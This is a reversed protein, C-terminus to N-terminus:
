WRVQLGGYIARGTGPEFLASTGDAATAISSSAIYAKDSLNRGELYATIPGGNDFGIKAGWVAYAETELSNASDVYYADPVWEVNPGLYLGSPHKYLLEARVFHRPAGPIENNGWLPDDDYRFDSLTYAATLWLKDPDAGGAIMSKMVAAGFGLEIGQHITEDANGVQCTGMAPNSTFCLLENDINARYLALDWTFDETRGRTGIEYTTARQAKVDAFSIGLSAVSEGFSPVEASRSINGFVQWNRTVDWLMGGKPSWINFETEGPTAGFVVDRERTAHLFQTGAILAVDSRVYFHNEFYASLNRSTDEADVTQAGKHGGANVYQRVDTTGNHINLGAITRNAFGGIRSEDTIRAFGGYDDYRYDLWQFIPHMLHRDVNFAGVELVTGPQLRVTTKNAIRVTDINRQYDNLVNGAAATRPDTLAAHKTVSGPIRQDVDNANLYFRTEIAETLRYGVNLSGRVSEGDSHDRFGDQEQWTGAMFYDVPGSVGGSSAALKHFGFSGADVRVGFLDADYGTAMVFNIAGGLANAGFRLANAGKFVEIYRYATPDIEQFDGYGDATNIPIGDMFLQIGRLHFNRSLGSGRISLRSDEGWKPQVFVGPVYDLADKITVAPTSAKYATDPVVEVAGPTREIDATAEAATPVGLSGSRTGPAPLGAESAAEVAAQQPAGSPSLPATKKVAAAKAKPTTTVVNVPPLETAGEASEQALSPLASLCLGAASLAALGGAHFFLPAGPLGRPRRFTSM